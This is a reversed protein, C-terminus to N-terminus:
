RWGFDCFIIFYCSFFHSFFSNFRVCMWQDYCYFHLYTLHCCIIWDACKHEGLRVKSREWRELYSDLSSEPQEPNYYSIERCGFHMETERIKNDISEVYLEPYRFWTSHLYSRKVNVATLRKTYTHPPPAPKIPCVCVPSGLGHM